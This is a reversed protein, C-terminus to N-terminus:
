ESGYAQVERLVAVVASYQNILPQTKVRVVVADVVRVLEEPHHEKLRDLIWRLVQHYCHKGIPISIITLVVQHVLLEEVYEWGGPENVDLLPFFRQFSSLQRKAREPKLIQCPSPKLLAVVSDQIRVDQCRLLAKVVIKVDPRYHNALCKIVELRDGINDLHQITLILPELFGLAKCGVITQTLAFDLQKSNFDRNKLLDQVMAVQGAVAAGVLLEGSYDPKIMELLEVDISRDGSRGVGQMITRVDEVLLLGRTSILLKIVEWQHYAAACQYCSNNVLVHVNLLGQIIDLHGGGCASAMVVPRKLQFNTTLLDLILRHGGFAALEAALQISSDDADTPPQCLQQSFYRLGYVLTRINGEACAQILVQHHPHRDQLGRQAAWSRPTTSPRHYSRPTAHHFDYSRLLEAFTAAPPLGHRQALVKLVDALEFYQFTLDNYLEQLEELELHEVLILTLTGVQPHTFYEAYAIQHPLPGARIRPLSPLSPLLPLSVTSM